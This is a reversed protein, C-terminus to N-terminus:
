TPESQPRAELAKKIKDWVAIVAPAREADVHPTGKRAKTAAEQLLGHLREDKYSLDALALIAETAKARTREPYQHIVDPTLEKLFSTLVKILGPHSLCGEKAKLKKFLTLSGDCFAEMTQRTPQKQGSGSLTDTIQEACNELENIFKGMQSREKWLSPNLSRLLTNIANARTRERVDSSSGYVGKTDIDMKDANQDSDSHLAEAVVESVEAYM